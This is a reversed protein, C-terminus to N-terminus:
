AIKDPVVFPARYARTLLRDAEPDDTFTMSAADVTLKRGLRYNLTELKVGDDKLHEEMRAFTEQADKDDGFARTETSFPVESGLRYAKELHERESRALFQLDM